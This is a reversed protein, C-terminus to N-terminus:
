ATIDVEEKSTEQRTHKIVPELWSDPIYAKPTDGLINTLGYTDSSIWWYFDTIQATCEIGRFDFTDGQKFHGILTEVLVSKGINEPRISMIIKATDGKKCKM